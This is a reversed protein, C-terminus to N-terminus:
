TRPIRAATKNRATSGSKAASPTGNNKMGGFYGIFDFMFDKNKKAYYILTVYQKQKNRGYTIV